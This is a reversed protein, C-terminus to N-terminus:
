PRNHPYRATSLAIVGALILALGVWGVAGLREGVVVALVTAILPEILAITTAASSRLTGLAIGFLLYAVLLVPLLGMAGLGFMGGMVGRSPLGLTMARSSAYTYLAFASGAVLGLIV